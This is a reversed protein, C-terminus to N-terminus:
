QEEDPANKPTNMIKKALGVGAAIVIGLMVIRDSSGDMFFNKIQNWFIAGAGFVVMSGVIAAPGEWGGKPPKPMEEEEMSPMGGSLTTTQHLANFFANGAKGTNPYRIQTPTPTGEEKPKDTIHTIIRRMQPSKQTAGSSFPPTNITVSRISQPRPTINSRADVRAKEAELIRRIRPPASKPRDRYKNLIRRKTM